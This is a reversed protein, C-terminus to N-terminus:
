ELFLGITCLFLWVKGYAHSQHKDKSHNQSKNASQTSQSM